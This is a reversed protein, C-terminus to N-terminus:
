TKRNRLEAEYISAYRVNNQQRCEELKTQLFPTSWRRFFGQEYVSLAEKCAVLHDATDDDSPRTDSEAIYKKLEEVDRQSCVANVIDYVTQYKNLKM